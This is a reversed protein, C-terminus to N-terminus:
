KKEHKDSSLRFKVPIQVEIAVPRGDKQAPQFSWQTVAEVAAEDLEAHGEVGEEVQVSEVSGTEGVKVKLVVMGQIGAKRAKEPYKPQITTKPVPMQDVDMKAEEASETEAGAKAAVAEKGMDGAHIPLPLFSGAGVLLVVAAMIFQHKTKMTYRGSVSLRQLRQYVFSRDSCAATSLGTPALGLQVSRALARAYTRLAVGAGRVSDDCALEATERLHRVVPRLLPYFFFPAACLRQMTLRLPDRRQRHANEHLLIARLEDEQLANVLRRSLLIRPRVLGVVAPVTAAPCIVISESRVGSGHLAEVLKNRLRRPLTDIPEGGHQRALGIDRLTRVVQWTAVAAWGVTVTAVSWSQWSHILAGRLGLTGSPDLIAVVAPLRPLATARTANAIAPVVETGIWRALAGFVTLPLMLKVLGVTWLVHSARAPAERMSRALVFLPLLILTTQWLHTLMGLWFQYLLNLLTTV